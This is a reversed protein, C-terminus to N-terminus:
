ITTLIQISLYQTWFMFRFLNLHPIQPSKSDICRFDSKREPNINTVLVADDNEVLGTKCTSCKRKTKLLIMDCLPCIKFDRVQQLKSMIKDIFDVTRSSGQEELIQEISARIFMKFQAMHMKHFENHTENDNALIQTVM